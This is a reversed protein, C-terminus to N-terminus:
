IAIGAPDPSYCARAPQAAGQDGEGALPPPDAEGDGEGAHPPPNPLPCESAERAAARAGGEEALPPPDSPAAEEEEELEEDEEEAEEEDEEGEEDAEAESFTGGLEAFEKDDLESQEYTSLQRKAAAVRLIGLAREAPLTGEIVAQVLKAHLYFPNLADAPAIGPSPPAAGSEGERAAADIRGACFRAAVKDGM